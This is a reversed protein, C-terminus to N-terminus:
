LSALKWFPSEVLPMVSEEVVILGVVVGPVVVVDVPVVIVIVVVDVPVVIM